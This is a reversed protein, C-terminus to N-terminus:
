SVPLHRHNKQLMLESGERLLRDRVKDSQIGAALQSTILNDTLNGYECLAALTKLETIYHQSIRRSKPTM